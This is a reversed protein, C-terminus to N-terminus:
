SLTKKEKLFYFGSQHIQLNFLNQCATQILSDLQFPKYICVNSAALPAIVQVVGHQREQPLEEALIVWGSTGRSLALFSYNNEM